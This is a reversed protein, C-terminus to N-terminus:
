LNWCTLFAIHQTVDLRDEISWYTSTVAQLYCWEYIQQAPHNLLKAFDNIRDSVVILPDKSKMLEILPNRIYQLIMSITALLVKQTLLSGNITRRLFLTEPIFIAM